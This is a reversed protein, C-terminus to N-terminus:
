TKEGKTISYIWTIIFVIAFCVTFLGWMTKAPAEVKFYLGGTIGMCIGVFNRIFEMTRHARHKEKLVAYKLEIQSKENLIDVKLQREIKLECSLSEVQEALMKKLMTDATYPKSDLKKFEDIATPIQERKEKYEESRPIILTRESTIEPERIRTSRKLSKLGFYISLVLGIIGVIIGSYEM